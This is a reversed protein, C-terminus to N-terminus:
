IKTIDRKLVGIHRGYFYSCSILIGIKEASNNINQSDRVFMLVIFFLYIFLISFYVFCWIRYVDFAM